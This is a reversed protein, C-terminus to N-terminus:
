GSRSQRVGPLTNSLQPVSTLEGGTIRYTVFKHTVGHENIWSHAQEFAKTILAHVEEIDTGKTELIVQVYVADAAFWAGYRFVLDRRTADQGLKKFVKRLHPRIGGVYIEDCV